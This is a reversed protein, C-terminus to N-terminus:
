IYDELEKELEAINCDQYAVLTAKISQQFTFNADMLRLVLSCQPTKESFTGKWDEETNLERIRDDLKDFVAYDSMWILRKSVEIAEEMSYAKVEAKGNLRFSYNVIHTSLEAM